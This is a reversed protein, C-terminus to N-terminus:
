FLVVNEGNVPYYEKVYAWIPRCKRELLIDDRETVERGTNMEVAYLSQEILEMERELLATEDLDIFKQRPIVSHIPVPGEPKVATASAEGVWAFNSILSALGLSPTYVSQHTQLAERFQAQLTANEHFFYVRYRPQYVYEMMTPKPNDATRNTNPRLNTGLRKMIIPNKVGIGMLCQKGSFSSLYHNDAKSLGLIAGVYGYLATKTPIVYSVASTTAYIKKFHAYDGWIDFVLIHKTM